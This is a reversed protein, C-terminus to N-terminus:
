RISPKTPISFVADSAVLEFRSYLVMGYHNSLPPLVTFRHSAELPRCPEIWWADPEALLIIDPYRERLIALLAALSKKASGYRPRYCGSRHPYSNLRRPYSIGAARPNATYYEEFKEATNEPRAADIPLLGPLAFSLALPSVVRSDGFIIDMEMDM